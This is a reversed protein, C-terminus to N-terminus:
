FSLGVSSQSAFNYIKRPRVDSVKQLVSGFDEPLMTLTKVKDLIRLAKLGIFENHQANRSTGWVEYGKSLLIRALYAGDQGSIGCILARPQM